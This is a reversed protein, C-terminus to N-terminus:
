AGPSATPTALFMDEPFAIQTGVRYKVRQMWTDLDQSWWADIEEWGNELDTGLYLDHLSGGIYVETGNLGKVGIFRVETQPFFFSKLGRFEEEKLPPCCSNVGMEAMAFTIQRYKSAPMLIVPQAGEGSGEGREFASEPLYGYLEKIIEWPDTATLTHKTVDADNKLLKVLGDIKNLNPDASTTDGQYILKENRMAVANAFGFAIVEAASGLSEHGAEIKVEAELYMKEFDLACVKDTVKICGVRLERDVFEHTTNDPNTGCACDDLEVTTKAIHLYDSSKIGTQINFLGTSPAGLVATGLLTERNDKYCASAKTKDIAM